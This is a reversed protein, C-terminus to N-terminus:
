HGHFYSVARHWVEEAVTRGIIRGAMDGNYFHLGGYRRSIGAQAAAYSFTPWSLTIRSQPTSGPEIASTGPSFSVSEGFRDKHTWLRLITAGAASFASHGSPYEPFPPTAFYDPQYPVWESGDLRITGKGPGGWCRMPKGKFLYPVATIPRVSDFKRKATWVVIGADSVANTLAFFMKVDDDLNHHDRASVYQAFLCWHGPPLESNPGDTWYESIMKWQDTLNASIDVLEKAQLEFASTGFKAIPFQDSAQSLLSEYPGAFTGVKFWQAGLFPEPHIELIPEPYLLPQFRNPDKVTSPDVPVRSRPNIAAYGTYDSYAVADDTMDGLQNAGDNHHAQLVAGCTVNGIGAPLTIDVTSDTPDYGLKTKMFPDFIKGKARPFLDIGARYAAYSIAIRKNATTRERKPRRIKTGFQTGAAHSDYPVWADYICTHFISLARAVMPPGLTSHRVAELAVRNWEVIITQEDRGAAYIESCLLAFVIIFLSLCKQIRM